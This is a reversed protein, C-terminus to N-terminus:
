DDTVELYEFKIRTVIKNSTCKNHRCYMDVFQHPTLHPFGEKIVESRGYNPYDILRSLLERRVSVVRHQGFKVIKEGKRLGQSKEVGNHVDGVRTFLWGNRRTVTKTHDIYQQTTLAFSMNRPM